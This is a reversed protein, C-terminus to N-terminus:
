KLNNKIVSRAVSITTPLQEFNLGDYKNLIEMLHAIRPLRLGNKRIMEPNSFIENPTGKITIEGNNLVYCYDAYLPAIDIDHTAIIVSINLNKQMENLLELIESSGQPDLGATPEDLIIVKPEMALIGAIAVRKKQGFSLFHTPKDKINEIGTAVIAKEVREKVINKPLKMNMPGFSIDQYVSASFLQIDPDQFVIGLSKRIENISKTNYSIEKGDFKYSSIRPKFIGNLCKFLTSKGAGNGGLIFTTKSSYFKVNINKLAVTGDPYSYNLDKVEIIPNM